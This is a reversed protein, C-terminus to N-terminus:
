ITNEIALFPHQATTRITKGSKTTLEYVEQVGMNMLKNIRAFEMEGTTENLSLVEDGPYIRDIRELIEDWVFDDKDNGVEGPRKKRRRRIMLMTDATVCNGEVHLKQIPTTTGIGFNGTGTNIWSDENTIGALHVTASATAIAGLNISNTIDTPTLVGANLQWLSVGSVNICTLTDGIQQIAQGAPCSSPYNQLKTWDLESIEANNIEGTPLSVTGSAVTLGTLGTLTGTASINGTNGITFKTNGSASATFIDGTGNQNAILAANALTALTNVKTQGSAAVYFRDTESSGATLSLLRGTATNNGIYGSILSGSTLNANEIRLTDTDTTSGLVQVQGAGIADPQLVIDGGSNAATSLTLAQGSLSFTGSTSNITPSDAQINIDGNNDVIPVTNITASSSAPYGQLTESNLAYGVTAIQQRPTLTETGVTVELYVDRNETFVTNTIETGCTGGGILTNFIGNQDAIISCTGSTYLESGTTFDNWLKFVVDVDTTIPTGSSDTLRGQFSLQRRPVTPLAASSPSAQKIIQNYGFVVMASTALALLALHLYPTFPLSNYKQYLTALRGQPRNRPANNKRTTLRELWSFPTLRPVERKYEFPNLPIYKQLFCYRTFQKISSQRRNIVSTSTHSLRLYTVYTNLHNESLINELKQDLFPTENASWAFFHNLDSIYNKVTSHTKKEKVLFSKFHELIRAITPLSEDDSNEQSNGTVPSSKSTRTPELLSSSLGFKSALFTSFRRISALRRNVTNQPTFNKKQDIIYLNLYKSINQFVEQVSPLDDVSDNSACFSFFHRLDSVYNKVSVASLGTEFLFGSFTSQLELQNPLFNM